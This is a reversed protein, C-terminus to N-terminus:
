ELDKAASMHKAAVLKINKETSSPGPTKHYDMLGDSVISPSTEARGQLKEM